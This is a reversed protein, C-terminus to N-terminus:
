YANLKTFFKANGLTALTEDVAPLIHNECCVFKKLHTYDVYIRIKGSKQPVAVMGASCWETPSTVPSIFGTDEMEKLQKIVENQLPLPVHRPTSLGFSKFEQNM